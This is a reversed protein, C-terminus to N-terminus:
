VLEKDRQKLFEPLSLDSEDWHRLKWGHTKELMMAHEQDVAKHELINSSESSEDDDGQLVLVRRVIMAGVVLGPFPAIPLEVPPGELYYGSCNVNVWQGWKM